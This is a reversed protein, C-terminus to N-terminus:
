RSPVVAEVVVTYPRSRTPGRLFREKPRLSVQATAEQGPVLQM